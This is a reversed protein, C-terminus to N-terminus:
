DDDDDTQNTVTVDCGGTVDTEKPLLTITYTLEWDIAKTLVKRSLRWRIDQKADDDGSTDTKIEITRSKSKGAEIQFDHDKAWILHFFDGFRVRLENNGDGKHRVTYDIRCPVPVTTRLTQMLWAGSLTGKLTRAM